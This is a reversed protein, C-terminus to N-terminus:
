DSLGTQSKQLGLSKLRGALIIEDMPNGQCFIDSHTAMEKELPHEWDLYWVQMEQM